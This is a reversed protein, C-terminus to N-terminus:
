NPLKLKPPIKINESQPLDYSVMKAMDGLSRRIHDEFDELYVYAMKHIETTTQRFNRSESIETKIRSKDFHIAVRMYLENRRFAAYVTGPQREEFYWYREYGSIASSQYNKLRSRLADDAIMQWGNLSGENASHDGIALLIAAEVHNESLGNPVRIPARDQIPVTKCGGLLFAIVFLCLIKRMFSRGITTESSLAGFVKDL